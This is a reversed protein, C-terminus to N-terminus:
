PYRKVVEAAKQKSESETTICIQYKKMIKAAEPKNGTIGTITFAEKYCDYAQQYEGLQRHCAAINRYTTLINGGLPQYFKLIQLSQQWQTIALQYQCATYFALAPKHHDNIATNISKESLQVLYEFWGSVCQSYIKTETVLAHQANAPLHYIEEAIAQGYKDIEGPQTKLFQEFLTVLSKPILAAQQHNLLGRLAAILQMAAFMGADTSVDAIRNLMAEDYCPLSGMTLKAGMYRCVMNEAPSPAILSKISQELSSNAIHELIYAGLRLIDPMNKELQQPTFAADVNCAKYMRESENRSFFNVTRTAMDGKVNQVNDTILSRHHFPQGAKVPQSPLQWYSAIHDLFDFQNTKSDYCALVVSRAAAHYPRKGIEVIDPIICERIVFTDNLQDLDNLFVNLCAPDTAPLPIKKLAEINKSMVAFVFKSLYKNEIIVTDRANSKCPLKLIYYESNEKALDAVIEKYNIKDVLWTKTISHCAEGPFLTSFIVKDDFVRYGSANIVPIDIKMESLIAAYDDERIHPKNSMCDIVIAAEKWEDRHALSFETFANFTDFYRINPFQKLWDEGLSNKLLHMNTNVLYITQTRKALAEMMRRRMPSIPTDVYKDPKIDREFQTHYYDYDPFGSGCVGGGIEFAVHRNGSFAHDYVLIFYHKSM